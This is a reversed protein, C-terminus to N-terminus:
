LIEKTQNNVLEWMSQINLQNIIQESIYKDVGQYGGVVDNYIYVQIESTNINFWVYYEQGDYILSWGSENQRTLNEIM